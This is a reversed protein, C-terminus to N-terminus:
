ERAEGDPSSSAGSLLQGASWPSATLLLRLQRWHANEIPPPAPRPSEAAPVPEAPEGAPEEPWMDPWIHRLEAVTGARDLLPAAPTSQFYPLQVIDAFRPRDGERAALMAGIAVKAGEPFHAGFDEWRMFFREPHTVPYAIAPNAATRYQEHRDCPEESFYFNHNIRVERANGDGGASGFPLNEVLLVTMIVGCAWVDASQADYTHRRGQVHLSRAQPTLDRGQELPMYGATAHGPVSTLRRTLDAGQMPPPGDVADTPCV